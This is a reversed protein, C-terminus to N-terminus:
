FPRFMGVQKSQPQVMDIFDFGSSRVKIQGQSLQNIDDVLAVIDQGPLDLTLITTTM